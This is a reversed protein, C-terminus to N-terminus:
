TSATSSEISRLIQEPTDFTEVGIQTEDLEVGFRDELHGLLIVVGFSDVLGSSLLPTDSRLPLDISLTTKILSILDDM